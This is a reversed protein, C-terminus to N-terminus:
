YNSESLLYCCLVLILLQWTPAINLQGEFSSMFTDNTKLWSGSKIESFRQTLDSYNLGVLRGASTIMIPTSTVFLTWFHKAYFDIQSHERINYAWAM